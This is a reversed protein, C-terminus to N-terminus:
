WVRGSNEESVECLELETTLICLRMGCHRVVQIQYVGLSQHQKLAGYCLVLSDRYFLSFPQQHAQLLEVSLLGLLCRPSFKHLLEALAVSVELYLLEQFLSLLNYLNTLVCPMQIFLYLLTCYALYRM